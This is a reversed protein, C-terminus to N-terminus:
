TGFNYTSDLLNYNATDEAPTTVVNRIPVRPISGKWYHTSSVRTSRGITTGPLNGSYTVNVSLLGSQLVNNIYVEYNSALNVDGGLFKIKIENYVDKVLTIPLQKISIPGSPIGFNLGSYIGTESYFVVMSPYGSVNISCLHPYDTHGTELKAVFTVTYESVYDLTFTSPNNTSYQSIGNLNRIGGFDSSYTPNNIYDFVNGGIVDTWTTGIGDDSNLNATNLDFILGRQTIYSDRKRSFLIRKKSM